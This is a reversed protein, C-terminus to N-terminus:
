LSLRYNENIYQNENLKVENIISRLDMSSINNICLYLLFNNIIDKEYKQKKQDFTTNFDYLYQDEPRNKISDFINDATVNFVLNVTEKLEETPEVKLEETPEVKLEETPEVKLEEIPEVKLEEIPEVKLEQEKVVEKVELTDNKNIDKIIHKSIKSM